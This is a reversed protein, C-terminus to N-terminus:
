VMPAAETMGLYTGSKMDNGFRPRTLPGTKKNKLFFVQGGTINVIDFTAM